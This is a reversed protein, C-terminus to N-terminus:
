RQLSNFLQSNKVPRCQGKKIKEEAAENADWYWVGGKGCKLKVNYNSLWVKAGDILFMYSIYDEPIPGRWKHPDPIGTWEITGEYVDGSPTVLTHITKKNM